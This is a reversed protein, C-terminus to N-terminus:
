AKTPKEIKGLIYYPPLPEVKQDTVLVTDGGCKLYISKEGGGIRAEWYGGLDKVRIHANILDHVHFRLDGGAKFEVKDGLMTQCDISMTRGASVNGLRYVGQLSLNLGSYADAQGKIGQVDINKGAYVKVNSELPVLVEGSGGMQVEIVEDPKNKGEGRGEVRDPVRGLPLPPLKLRVDFLVHDGIAARARGIQSESRRELTLGWNDKTEAIVLDSDHGKVTVSGGVKIIISQNKEALISRQTM